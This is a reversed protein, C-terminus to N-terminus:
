ESVTDIGQEDVGSDDIGAEDLGAERIGAGGDPEAEDMAPDIDEEVRVEGGPPKSTTPSRTRARAFAELLEDHGLAELSSAPVLAERAAHDPRGPSFRVLLLAAGVDSGTGSRGGGEESVTWTEGEADLSLGTGEDRESGGTL